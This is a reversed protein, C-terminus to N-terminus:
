SSPARFFHLVQMLDSDSFFFWSRFAPKYAKSTREVVGRQGQQTERVPTEGEFDALSHLSGPWEEWERGWFFLPWALSPEM